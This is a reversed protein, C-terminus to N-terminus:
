ASKRTQRHLDLLRKPTYGRLKEVYAADPTRGGFKQRAVEEVLGEKSGFRRQVESLVEHLRLLQRNRAGQLRASTGQEATEGMMELLTKVLKERSEFREEVRQKPSKKM